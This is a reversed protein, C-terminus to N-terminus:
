FLQLILFASNTLADQPWRSESRVRASAISSSVGSLFWCQSVPASTHKKNRYQFLVFAWSFCTMKLTNHM